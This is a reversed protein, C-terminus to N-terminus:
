HCDGLTTMMALELFPLECCLSLVVLVANCLNLVGSLCNSLLDNVATCLGGVELLSCVPGVGSINEDCGYLPTFVVDRLGKQKVGSSGNKAVAQASTAAFGKEVAVGIAHQTAATM